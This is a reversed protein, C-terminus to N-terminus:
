KEVSKKFTDDSSFFHRVKISLVMLSLLIQSISQFLISIRITIIEPLGRGQKAQLSGAPLTEQVKLLM